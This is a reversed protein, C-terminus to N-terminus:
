TWSQQIQETTANKFAQRILTHEEDLTKLAAELTEQEPQVRATLEVQYNPQGTAVLQAPTFNIYLRGAPSGNRPIIYQSSLILSELEIGVDVKNILRTLVEPTRHANRGDAPVLANIYTIECQNPILQGLKERMLFTQFEALETELVKKLSEYGSYQRGDAQRRWNMIIKDNQIQLLFCPDKGEFWFRPVPARQFFQVQMTQPHPAVGFTEFVPPLPPQEIIRPYRDRVQSWFLGMHASQLNQLTAYQIGLVVEIVPPRTWLPDDNTM